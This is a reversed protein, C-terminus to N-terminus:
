PSLLSVPTSHEFLLIHHKESAERIEVRAQEEKIIILWLEYGREPDETLIAQPLHSRTIRCVNTTDRLSTHRM